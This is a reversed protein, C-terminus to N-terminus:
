HHYHHGITTTTPETGGDTGISNRGVGCSKPSLDYLRMSARVDAVMWGLSGGVWGQESTESPQARACMKVAWGVTCGVDVWGEEEKEDDDDDDDDDDEEEEEEEKEEEEEACRVVMGYWVVGYCLM